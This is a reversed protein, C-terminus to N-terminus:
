RSTDIASESALEVEARILVEAEAHETASRIMGPTICRAIWGDESDEEGPVTHRDPDFREGEKPFFPAIGLYGVAATLSRHLRIVRRCLKSVEQFLATDTVEATKLLEEAQKAAAYYSLCFTAMPKLELKYLATQWGRVASCLAAQTQRLQTEALKMADLLDAQFCSTERRLEDHYQAVTDAMCKAQEAACAQEAAWDQRLLAQLAELRGEPGERRQLPFANEATRPFECFAQPPPASMERSDQRKEQLARLQQTLQEKELCLEDARKRAAALAREAEGCEQRLGNMRLELLQECMAACTNRAQRDPPYGLGEAWAVPQHNVTVHRLCAGEPERKGKREILKDYVTYVAELEYVTFFKRPDWLFCSFFELLFCRGTENIEFLIADALEETYTCLEQGRRANPLRTRFFNRAPANSYIEYAQKM